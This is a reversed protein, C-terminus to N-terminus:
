LVVVCFNWSTLGTFSKFGPFFAMNPLMDAFGLLTKWMSFLIRVESFCTSSSRRDNRAQNREREEDKSGAM